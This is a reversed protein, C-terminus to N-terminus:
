QEAIIRMKANELTTILTKEGEFQYSSAFYREHFTILYRDSEEGPYPLVAVNSFYITKPEDKAFIRKKYARFADLDKGDFRKFRADYFSLYSELDNNLWALRWAFLQSLLTALQEKDIDIKVEEDIVLLTHKMDLTADLTRLDSNELAICGKTATERLTNEPVGHIWIGSGNKGRIRDFLNPYSTVYALPGYYPDLKDLKQTLTYIGIPTRHDGEIQKDGTSKGLLADYQLLTKFSGNNQRKHYYLKGEKKNCTLLADRGELYGYTTDLTNLHREWFAKGALERDLAQTLAEVGQAQYILAPEETAYLAYFM